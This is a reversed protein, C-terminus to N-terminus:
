FTRYILTLFIMIIIIKHTNVQAKGENIQFIFEYKKDSIEEYYIYRDKAARSIQTCM